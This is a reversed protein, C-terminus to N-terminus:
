HILGSRFQVSSASFGMTEFRIIVRSRTSTVDALTPQVVKLLPRRGGMDSHGGAPATGFFDM